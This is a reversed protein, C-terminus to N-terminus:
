REKMIEELQFIIHFREGDVEIFHPLDCFINHKEELDVVAKVIQKYAEKAIDLKDM